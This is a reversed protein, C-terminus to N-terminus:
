VQLYKGLPYQYEFRTNKEIAGKWAGARGHNDKNVIGEVLCFLGDYNIRYKQVEPDKNELWVGNQPNLASEEDSYISDGGMNLKLFGIVRVRLGGHWDQISVTLTAADLSMWRVSDPGFRKYPVRERLPLNM